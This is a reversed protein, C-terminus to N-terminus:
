DKDKLIYCNSLVPPPGHQGSLFDSYRRDKRKKEEEEDRDLDVCELATEGDARSPKATNRKREREERGAGERECARVHHDLCNLLILDLPSHSTRRFPAEILSHEVYRAGLRLM